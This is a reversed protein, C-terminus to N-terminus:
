LLLPHQKRFKQFRTRSQGKYIHGRTLAVTTTTEMLNQLPNTTSDVFVGVPAPAALGEPEVSPESAQQRPIELLFVTKAKKKKLLVDPCEVQPDTNSHVTSSPGALARSLQVNEHKHQGGKNLPRVWKLCFNVTSAGYFIPNQQFSSQGTLFHTKRAAEHM